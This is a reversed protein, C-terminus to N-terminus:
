PGRRQSPDVTRVELVTEAHRTWWVRTSGGLVAVAAAAVALLILQGGESKLWTESVDDTWLRFATCLFPGALVGPVWRWRHPMTINACEAGLLLPIIVGVVAMSLWDPADWTHRLHRLGSWLSELGYAGVLYNATVRLHKAITSSFM